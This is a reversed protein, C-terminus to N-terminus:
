SGIRRWLPKGKERESDKHASGRPQRASPHRTVHVEVLAITERPATAARDQRTNRSIRWRSSDESPKPGAWSRASRERRPIPRAAPSRPGVSVTDSDQGSPTQSNVRRAAACRYGLLHEDGTQSTASATPLGLPLRSADRSLTERHCGGLAAWRRV